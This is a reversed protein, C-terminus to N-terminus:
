QIAKWSGGGICEWVTGITGGATCSSAAGMCSYLSGVVCSSTPALSGVLWDPSSGGGTATNFTSYGVRTPSPSNVVQEGWAYLAVTSDTVSAGTLENYITATGGSGSRTLGAITIDCANDSQTSGFYPCGANSATGTGNNSIHVLNTFGSGRINILVNSPAPGLKGILIGDTSSGSISIDELRNNPSDITIAASTSNTSCKLGQIVRTNPIQASGPGIKLCTNVNTMSINTYPGSNEAYKDSINIGTGVNTISVDKVLSREQSCCNVIGTGSGNGTIGLHEVMIGPCDPAVTPLNNSCPLGSELGMDIIETLGSGSITTIGPGEGILVTHDTLVWTSTIPITGAPLLVINAFSSTSSLASWPNVTCSPSAVGRADVIVGTPLPPTAVAAALAARVLQCVDNGTGFQTADLFSYSPAKTISGGVDSLVVANFGSTPLPPPPPGQALLAVKLIALATLAHGIFRIPIKM